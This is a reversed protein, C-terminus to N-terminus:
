VRRNPIHMDFHDLVKQLKPTPFSPLVLFIAGVRNQMESNKVVILLGKLEKEIRFRINVKDTRQASCWQVLGYYAPIDLGGFSQQHSPRILLTQVRRRM